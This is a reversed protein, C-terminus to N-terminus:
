SSQVFNDNLNEFLICIFLNVGNQFVHRQMFKFSTTVIMLFVLQSVAHDYSIIALQPASSCLTHHEKGLEHEM